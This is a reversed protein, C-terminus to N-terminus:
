QLHNRFTFSVRAKKKKKEMPIEHTFEKQFEGAMIMIRGSETPIDKEIQKTQKNRIRFTRSEGWSVCVVGAPDLFREDDSHAGISDEGNEYRNVLIGNFKASFMNNIIELLESLNPPMPQSAALQGSYRYGESENSFFGISRHQIAPKGFVIIGPNKVLKGEIEEVCKDVVQERSELFSYIALYSKQTVIPRSIETM